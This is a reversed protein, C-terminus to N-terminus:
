LMKIIKMKSSAIDGMRGVWYPTYPPIEAEVIIDSGYRVFYDGKASVVNTHAHVGEGEIREKFIGKWWAERAKITDGICVKCSQYPTQFHDEYLPILTKYVTIPKNSIKPLRHIKTLCM